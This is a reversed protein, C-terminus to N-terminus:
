CPRPAERLPRAGRGGARRTHVHGRRLSEKGKTFASVFAAKPAFSRLAERAVVADHEEVWELSRALQTWDWGGWAAPQQASLIGVRADMQAAGLAGEQRVFARYERVVRAFAFNCFERWDSWASLNEGGPARLQERTLSFGRIGGREEWKPESEEAKPPTKAEGEAKEPKPASTAGPEAKETKPASKADLDPPPPPTLLAKLREAYVPNNAAKTEDTTPPRVDNWSAYQTGWQRNLALLSGYSDQLWERFVALTGPSMDYDFPRVGETLSLEEGLSWALPRAGAKSAISKEIAARVAALAGEDFIPPKRELLKADRSKSYAALRQPWEAGLCLDHTELSLADSYFPMGSPLFRTAPQLAGTAGGNIGHRPLAQWFLPDAVESSGGIMAAYDDWPPTATAVRVVAQAELRFQPAGDQGAKDPEAEVARVLVLRQQQGFCVRPQEVTFRVAGGNKKGPPEIRFEDAVRGAGDIWLLRLSDKGCPGPVSGSLTGTVTGGAQVDPSDLELTLGAPQPEATEKVGESKVQEAPTSAKRSACGAPCLLALLLLLLLLPARPSQGVPERSFSPVRSYRGRGWLVKYFM